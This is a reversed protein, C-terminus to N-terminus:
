KLEALVKTAVVLPSVSLRGVSKQLHSAAFAARTLFGHGLRNLKGTLNLFETLEDSTCSSLQEKRSEKRPELQAISKM